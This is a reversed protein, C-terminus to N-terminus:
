IFAQIYSECKTNDHLTMRWDQNGLAEFFSGLSQYFLGCFGM